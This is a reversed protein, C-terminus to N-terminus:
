HAGSPKDPLYQTSLSPQPPVSAPEPTFHLSTRCRRLSTRLALTPTRVCKQPAHQRAVDPHALLPPRANLRELATM